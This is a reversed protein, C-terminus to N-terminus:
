RTTFYSHTLICDHKYSNLSGCLENRSPFTNGLFPYNGNRWFLQISAILFIVLGVVAMKKKGFRDVWQGSFPRILVIGISYITIALGMQQENGNLIDKVYLPFATALIYFNLAVFFNSLCVFIFDKTWIRERM